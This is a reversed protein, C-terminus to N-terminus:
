LKLIGRLAARLEQSNFNSPKLGASRKRLAAVSVLVDQLRDEQHVTRLRDKVLRVTGKKNDEVLELPITKKMQGEKGGGPSKRGEGQRM